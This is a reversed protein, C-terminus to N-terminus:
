TRARRTEGERARESERGVEEGCGCVHETLCVRARAHAGVGVGVGVGVGM